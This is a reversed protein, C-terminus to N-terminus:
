GFLWSQPNAVPRGEAALLAGKVIRIVSWIFWWVLIPIGILV